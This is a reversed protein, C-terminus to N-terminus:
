LEPVAPGIQSYKSKSTLFFDRIRSGTKGPIWFFRSKLTNNLKVLKALIIPYYEGQILFTEVCIFRIDPKESGFDPKKRLFRTCFGAFILNILIGHNSIDNEM